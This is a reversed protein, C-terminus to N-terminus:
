IGISFVIPMYVLSSTSDTLYGCTVQTKSSTPPYWTHWVKNRQSSIVISIFHKENYSLPLNCTITGIGQVQTKSATLWNMILKNSLVSPLIFPQINVVARM